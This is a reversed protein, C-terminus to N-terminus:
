PKQKLYANLAKKSQKGAADIEAETPRRLPAISGSPKIGRAFLGTTPTKKGVILGGVYGGWEGVRFTRGDAFTADIGDPKFTLRRFLAPLAMAIKGRADTLASRSLRELRQSLSQVGALQQDAPKAMRLTALQRELQTVTALKDTHQNALKTMSAHIAAPADAFTAALADVNRQLKNAEKQAVDLRAALDDANDDPADDQWTLNSLLALVNADVHDLRHYKAHTCKRHLSASCAIYSFKRTRGRQAVRMRDGCVGCRALSGYLNTFRTVNRGTGPGVKRGDIAAQAAQWQQETVVNPYLKLEGSVKRVGNVSQAVEQYGLVQRGRVLKQITSRNWIAKDRRRKRTCLFAVGEDNLEKAILDTGKALIDRFIRRIIETKPENLIPKDGDKIIWAPVMTRITGRRQTWNHRTRDAKNKLETHAGLMMGISMFLEGANSDVSEATYRRGDVLTVIEIGADLLDSFQNFAHRATQRSLRDFAEVILVSGTPIEGAEVRKIFRGLAGRKRHTGSFASYGEDRLSEDLKLGHAACYHATRELQRRLSDGLKQQPSSFRIYSFALPVGTFSPAESTTALKAM